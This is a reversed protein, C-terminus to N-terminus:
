YLENDMMRNGMTMNTSNQMMMNMDSMHLSFAYPISVRFAIILTILSLFIGFFIALFLKWFFKIKKM